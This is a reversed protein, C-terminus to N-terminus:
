QSLRAPKSPSLIPVCSHNWQRSHAPVENIWDRYSWSDENDARESQLSDRSRVPARADVLTVALALRHGDLSGAEYEGDACHLTWGSHVTMDGMKLPMYDIVNEYRKELNNWPSHKQPQQKQEDADKSATPREYWYALSFDSHTQSAFILGTTEVRQELPIWFTIMNNTDFPAMRADAHWPTPGDGPRKWFLADQYLRVSKVNMLRCATDVLYTETFPRVSIVHRWTNFFQLFPLAQSVGLRQLERQCDAISHCQAALEPSNSAVEVKQKWALIETRKAHQILETRLPLLVNPSCHKRLVAHGNRVYDLQTQLSLTTTTTTTPQPVRKRRPSSKLHQIFNSSSFENNMSPQTTPRTRNKQLPKPAAAPVSRSNRPLKNSSWLIVHDASVLQGHSCSSPTTSHFAFVQRVIGIWIIPFLSILPLVNKTM